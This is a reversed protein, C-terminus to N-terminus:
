RSAEGADGGVENVGAMGSREERTSVVSRKARQRAGSQAVREVFGKAIVVPHPQLRVGGGRSGRCTKGEVDGAESGVPINESGAVAHVAVPAIRIILHVAKAIGILAAALGHAGLGSKIGVIVVAETVAPVLVARM